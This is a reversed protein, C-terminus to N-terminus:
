LAESGQALLKKAVANRLVESAGEYIRLVRVDRYIREVQFGRTYGAAGFLQVATDAARGAAESCFIKTMASIASADEGADIRRAGDLVMTWGAHLETAVDALMHQVVQNSALPQGGVTRTRVHELTLDLAFAGMGVAIAAVNLRGENLSEMAYQFGQGEAGLLAEAPVACDHFAVEFLGDLTTGMTPMPPGISMGSQRAPVLFASISSKLGADAATRAFVVFLGAKDANSIYTKAGNIVYGESTRAARTRMAALDSGAQAETLAFAVGCDGAAMAPLWRHQQQASGHRVISKSSPGLAVRLFSWFQPPLRGLERVVNVTPLMGLAMGGFEEPIRMGYYGLERLAQDVAAPVCNSRSFSPEHLLLDDVLRRTQTRMKGIEEPSVDNM